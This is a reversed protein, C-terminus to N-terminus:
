MYKHLDNPIHFRPRRAPRGPVKSALPVTLRGKKQRSGDQPSPPAAASADARPLTLSLSGARRPRPRPAHAQKCARNTAQKYARNTAALRRERTSVCNHTATGADAPSRETLLRASEEWSIKRGWARFVPRPPARM